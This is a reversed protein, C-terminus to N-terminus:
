FNFFFFLGSLSAPRPSIVPKSRVRDDIKNNDYNNMSTTPTVEVYQNQLHPDDYNTIEESGDRSGNVNQYNIKSSNNSNFDCKFSSLIKEAVPQSVGGGSIGDSNVDTSEKRRLVVIEANEKVYLESDNFSNEQIHIIESDNSDFGSSSNNEHIYKTVDLSALNFKCDSSANSQISYGMSGVNSSGISIKDYNSDTDKDKNSSNFSNYNINTNATTNTTNFSNNCSAITTSTATSSPTVSACISKNLSNNRLLSQEHEKQFSDLEGLLNNLKQISDEYM